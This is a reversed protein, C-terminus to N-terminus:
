LEEAIRKSRVSLTAHVAGPRDITVWSPRNVHLTLVNGRLEGAAEKKVSPGYGHAYCFSVRVESCFGHKELIRINERLDFNGRSGNDIGEKAEVVRWPAWKCWVIGFAVVAIWYTEGM